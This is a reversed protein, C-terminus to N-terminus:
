LRRPSQDVWTWDKSSARCGGGPVGTWARGRLVRGTAVGTPEGGKLAVEGSFPKGGFGDYIMANRTVVAYVHPNAALAAGNGMSLAAALVACRWAFRFRVGHVATNLEAHNM